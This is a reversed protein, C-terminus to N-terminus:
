VIRWGNEDKILTGAIEFGSALKHGGGGFMAAIKSVDIKKEPESRLMGKLKGQEYETLLLSFAAEPVSNLLNVVGSLDDLSAGCEALDKYTIVSIAAGTQPNTEIRELARGIIKLSRLSRGGFVSQMIGRLNGGKEMLKASIKLVHSSVNAHQFSGTDTVVGALLCTAIDSNIKYGLTPIVEALIESTAAAEPLVIVVTGIRDSTAHHDIAVVPTKTKYIESNRTRKLESHDLAIILDFSSLDQNVSTAKDFDPLFSLYEPIPDPVHSVVEKNDLKLAISLALLSGAADGDPREHTTILIKRSNNLLAKFNETEKLVTQLFEPHYIKNM